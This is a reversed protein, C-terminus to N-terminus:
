GIYVAKTVTSGDELTFTWTETTQPVDNKNAINAVAISNTGDSLVGSLYLNIFQRGSAGLSVENASEPAFTGTNDFAVGFTAVLSDQPRIVVKNSNASLVLAGGNTRLGGGNVGKVYRNNPIILDGTMTGGALPLYDNLRSYDVEGTDGKEGKLDASSTGSASTITLTTGDWSHTCSVGDNGDEGDQGDFYDVNKQPTYGAEGTDGKEGKLDASSTGSASTVSLTTGSWSHTCSVGDAGAAGTGGTDGKSGKSGNQVSFTASTGNTLTVTFVNIGDDETSTTTQQISAIGVGDAGVGGTAGTEGRISPTTYSTGDYFTLTLTYDANLVASKIGNGDKGDQGATGTDGKLDASSTGSASTVTLTTGNWEHTASVGDTGDAGANGTEGKLAALQEATFDEYTFPDGKEGKDGVIAPIEAWTGDAQKVRLISM